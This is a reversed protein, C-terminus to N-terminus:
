ELNKSKQLSEIEQLTQQYVSHNPGGNQVARRSWYHAEELRGRRALVHALNNAADSNNPAQILAKRLVTEAAALDGQMIRCNGLGILAQQNDPWRDLARTYARAAAEWQGAQELGLVAELYAKEDASSPMHGAPLVVLGWYRSREWTFLFRSWATARQAATGSHLLITNGPRDLGIAVAYHWAPYSPTGLNQLVIVPHGAALESLLAQPGTIAHALRGRRRAAAVLSPQLSGERGPTYVEEVLEDPAVPLGSWGLVM